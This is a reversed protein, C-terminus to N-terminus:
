SIKQRRQCAAEAKVKDNQFPLIKKGHEGRGIQYLEPHLRFNIEDFNRTYDFEM